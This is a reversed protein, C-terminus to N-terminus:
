LIGHIEFFHASKTKPESRHKTRQWWRKWTQSACDFMKKCAM